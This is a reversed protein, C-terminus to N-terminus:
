TSKKSAMLRKFYNTIDSGKCDYVRYSKKGFVARRIGQISKAFIELKKGDQIVVVKYQQKKARNQVASKTNLTGSRSENVTFIYDTYKLTDKDREARAVNASYRETPATKDSFVSDEASKEDSTEPSPTYPVKPPVVPPIVPPVPEKVSM